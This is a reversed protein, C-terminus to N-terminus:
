KSTTIVIGVGNASNSKSSPSVKTSIALKGRIAMTKFFKSAETARALALKKQAKTVTGKPVWGFVSVEIIKLDSLEALSDNIAKVQAQSVKSSGKTFSLNVSSKQTERKIVVPLSVAVVSGNTLYMGMQITHNGDPLESPTPLAGSYNGLDDTMVTGIFTPESFAYVMIQSNPMVGNVRIGVSDRARIVLKSDELPASNGSTSSSASMSISVPSTISGGSTSGSSPGTSSGVTDELLTRSSTTSGSTNGGSGGAYSNTSSGSASVPM